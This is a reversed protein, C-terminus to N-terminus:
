LEKQVAELMEAFSATVNVKFVECKELRTLDENSVETTSFRSGCNVCERRRVVRNSHLLRSDKVQTDHGCRCNM